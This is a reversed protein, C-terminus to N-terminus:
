LLAEDPDPQGAEHPEDSPGGGPVEAAGAEEDEFGRGVLEVFVDELSPESKALAVIRADLGGLAAVVGALAADEALVLNIM